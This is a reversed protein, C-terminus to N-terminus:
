NWRGSANIRDMATISDVAGLNALLPIDPAVSRVQFTAATEPYEIAMRVSGLGM